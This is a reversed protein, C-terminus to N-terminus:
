SLLLKWANNIDGFSLYNRALKHKERISIDKIKSYKDGLEKVFLAIEEQTPLAEINALMGLDNGTLTM